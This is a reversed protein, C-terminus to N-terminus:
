SIVKSRPAPSAGVVTAATPRGNPKVNEPFVIEPVGASTPTDVRDNNACFASPETVSVSVSVTSGATETMVEASVAEPVTPVGKVKVTVAVFEGVENLM